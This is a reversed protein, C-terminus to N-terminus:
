KLFLLSPSEPPHVSLKWASANTEPLVPEVKWECDGSSPLTNLLPVPSGEEWVYSQDCWSLKYIPVLFLEKGWKGNRILHKHHVLHHFSEGWVGTERQKLIKHSNRGSAHPQMIGLVCQQGSVWKYNLWCSSIGLLWLSQELKGFSLPHVSKSWTDFDQLVVNDRGNHPLQYPLVRKLFLWPLGEHPANTINERCHQGLQQWAYCLSHGRVCDRRTDQHEHFVFRCNPHIAVMWGTRGRPKTTSFFIESNVM